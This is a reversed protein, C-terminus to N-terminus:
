GAAVGVPCVVDRDGAVGGAAWSRHQAWAINLDELVIWWSVADVALHHVIVVLQGHLDVWLASLMVGAAPNLRSRASALAEDSFVDVPQLCERADVSGPEPVTVVLREAGEVRRRAAAVHCPSGARGAVAGARRGRRGGGPGAGAGDPQVARSPRAIRSELWRMIPTAIVPGAGEDVPGVQM